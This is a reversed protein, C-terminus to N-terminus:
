EQTGEGQNAIIQKENRRIERYVSVNLYVLLSISIFQM